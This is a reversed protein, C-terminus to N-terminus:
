QTTWRKLFPIECDVFRGDDALPKIHLEARIEEVKWIVRVESIWEQWCENGIWEDVTVLDHVSSLYAVGASRPTTNDGSGAVHADAIWENAATPRATNLQRNLEVELKTLKLEPEEQSIRSLLM